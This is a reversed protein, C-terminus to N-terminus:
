PLECARPDGSQVAELAVLCGTLAAADDNIVSVPIKGLEADFLTPAHFAADFHPNAGGGFVGRAVSGALYIGDLPLYSFVAQRCFAGTLTSFVEIATSAAANGNNAAAVIKAGDMAAGGSVLAYIRSLGRGSLCDEIELFEQAACGLFEQALTSVPLPLGGHGLEAEFCVPASLGAKRVMSANLGTGIGVILSQGNRRSAGDVPCIPTLSDAPLREAGYGLAVVDNVLLSRGAGGILRSLSAADVQWRLNTLVARGSTVPGAVAVSCASLRGGGNARLFAAVVDDFAAFDCNRYRRLTDFRVTGFQCGGDGRRDALALRSNTGGIDAVLIPL